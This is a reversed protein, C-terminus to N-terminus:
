KPWIPACQEAKVPHPCGFLRYPKGSAKAIGARYVMTGHKCQHTEGDPAQAAGFPAAATPYSEKLVKGVTGYSQFKKSAEWLNEMVEVLVDASAGSTQDKLDLISAAHIVIWPADFGGGGKLTGVVETKDEVLEKEKKQQTKIEVVNDNVELDGFPDTM